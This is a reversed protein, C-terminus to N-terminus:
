GEGACTFRGIEKLRNKALDITADMETFPQGQALEGLVTFEVCLGPVAQKRAM